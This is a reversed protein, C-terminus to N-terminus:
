NQDFFLPTFSANAGQLRVFFRLKWPTISIQARIPAAGERASNRQEVFKNMFIVGCWIHHMTKNANRTKQEFSKNTPQDSRDPKRLWFTLGNQEIPNENLVLPWTTLHGRVGKECGTSHNQNGAESRQRM